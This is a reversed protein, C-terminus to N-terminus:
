KGVVCCLPHTKDTIYQSEDGTMVSAAVLVRTEMQAKLFTTTCAYRASANAMIFEMRIKM